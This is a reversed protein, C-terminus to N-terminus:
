DRRLVEVVNPDDSEEPKVLYLGLIHGASGKRWVKWAVAGVPAEGFRAMADRAEASEAGLEESRENVLASWRKTAEEHTPYHEMRRVRRVSQEESYDVVLWSEGVKFGKTKCHVYSQSQMERPEHRCFKQKELAGETASRSKGLSVPFRLDGGAGCGLLVVPLLSLIAHWIEFRM